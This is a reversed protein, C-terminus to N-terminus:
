NNSRMSPVHRSPATRVVVVCSPVLSLRLRRAAESVSRMTSLTAIEARKMDNDTRLDAAADRLKRIEYGLVVTSSRLWITRSVATFISLVALVFMVARM